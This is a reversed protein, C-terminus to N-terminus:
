DEELAKQISRASLKGNPKRGFKKEFEIALADRDLEAVPATVGDNKLDSDNHELAERAQGDVVPPAEEAEQEAEQRRQEVVQVAPMPDPQGEVPELTPQDVVVNPEDVAVEEPPAYFPPRNAAATDIEIEALTADIQEYRDEDDLDNWESISLGSAKFARSTLEELSLIEGNSLSFQAAHVQSGTITLDASRSKLDAPVEGELPQYGEPISLLRRIHAEVPVNAQHRDDNELPKFHYTADDFQVITGEKRRILSEIKM